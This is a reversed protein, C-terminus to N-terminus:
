FIWCTAAKEPNGAFSRNLDNAPCFDSALIPPTWRITFSLHFCALGAQDREDCRISEICRQLGTKIATEVGRPHKFDPDQIM